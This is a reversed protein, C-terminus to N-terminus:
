PLTSYTFHESRFIRGRCKKCYLQQQIRNEYTDDEFDCSTEKGCHPCTWDYVVMTISRIKVNVSAM